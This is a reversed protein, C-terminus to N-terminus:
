ISHSLCLMAVYLQKGYPALHAIICEKTTKLTLSPSLELRNGCALSLPLPDLVEIQFM